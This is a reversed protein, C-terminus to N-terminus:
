IDTQLHQEVMPLKSSLNICRSYKQVNDLAILLALSKAAKSRIYNM